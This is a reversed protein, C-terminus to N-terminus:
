VFGRGIDLFSLVPWILRREFFAVINNEGTYLGGVRLIQGVGCVPCRVQFKGSKSPVRIRVRCCCCGIQENESQTVPCFRSKIKLKPIRHRIDRLYRIDEKKLYGMSETRTFQFEGSKRISETVCVDEFVAGFGAMVATADTLEENRLTPELLIGKLGLVIHAMEHAIIALLKKDEAVYSDDIEVFWIGKQHSVHAATGEKLWSYKVKIRPIKIGYQCACFLVLKKVFDIELDSDLSDSNAFLQHRISKCVKLDIEPKRFVEDGLGQKALTLYARLEIYKKMLLAM